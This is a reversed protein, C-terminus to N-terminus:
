MLVCHRRWSKSFNHRPASVASTLPPNLLREIVLLMTVLALQPSYTRSLHGLGVADFCSFSFLVYLIQSWDWWTWTGVRWVVMMAWINDIPPFPLIECVVCYKSQQSVSKSRLSTFFTSLRPPVHGLARSSAVDSSLNSGHAYIGPSRPSCTGGGLIQLSPRYPLNDGESKTMYTCFSRETAKLISWFGNEAPARVRVGSPRLEHV